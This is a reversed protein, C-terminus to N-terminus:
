FPEADDHTPQTAAGDRERAIARVEEPTVIGFRLLGGCEPPTRKGPDDSDPDYPRTGEHIYGDAGHWGIAERLFDKLNAKGNQGPTLTRGAKAEEVKGLAANWKEEFRRYGSLLDGLDFTSATKKYDTLYNAFYAMMMYVTCSKGYRGMFLNAATRVNGDGPVFRASSMNAVKNINQYVIDSALGPMGYISKLESLRPCPVAVLRTYDTTAFLSWNCPAAWATLDNGHPFARLMEDAGNARATGM